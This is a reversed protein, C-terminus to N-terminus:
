LTTPFPSLSLRAQRGGFYLSDVPLSAAATSTPIVYTLEVTLSYGVFSSNDELLDALRKMVLSDNFSSPRSPALFSSSLCLIFLSPYQSESSLLSQQTCSINVGLNNPVDGIIYRRVQVSKFMYKTYSQSYRYCMYLKYRKCGHHTASHIFKHM